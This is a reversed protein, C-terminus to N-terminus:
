LLVGAMDGARYTWGEPLRGREDMAAWEAAARARIEPSLKIRGYANADDPRFDQEVPAFAQKTSCSQKHRSKVAKSGFRQGCNGCSYPLAAAVREPMRRVDAQGDAIATLAERNM